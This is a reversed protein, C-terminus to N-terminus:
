DAVRVFRQAIYGDVTAVGFTYITFGNESPDIRHAVTKKTWGVSSCLYTRELAGGVLRWSFTAAVRPQEESEILTYFRTASVYVTHRIAPWDIPGSTGYEVESVLTYFGPTITGLPKEEPTPAPNAVITVLEGRQELDHCVPSPKETVPSPPEIGADYPKQQTGRADVVSADGGGDVDPSVVSASSCALPAATSGVLALLAPTRLRVLM